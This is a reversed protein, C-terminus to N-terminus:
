PWSSIFFVCPFCFFVHAAKPQKKHMYLLLM